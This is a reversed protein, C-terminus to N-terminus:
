EDWNYKTKICYVNQLDYSDDHYLDNKELTAGSITRGRNPGSDIIGDFTIQDSNVWTIIVNYINGFEDKGCVVEGVKVRQALIEEKRNLIDFVYEPTQEHVINPLGAGGFLLYRDEAKMDYIEKLAKFAAEAGDLFAAEERIESISKQISEGVIMNQTGTAM